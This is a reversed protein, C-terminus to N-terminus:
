SSGGNGSEKRVRLKEGWFYYSLAPPTIIMSTRSDREFSYESFGSEFVITGSLPFGVMDEYVYVKSQGTSVLQSLTVERDFPAEETLYSTYDLPDAPDILRRQVFEEQEIEVFAVVTAVHSFIGDFSKMSTPKRWVLPVKVQEVPKGEEERTVAQLSGVKKRMRILFASLSDYYDPDRCVTFVYYVLRVPVPPDFVKATLKDKDKDKVRKFWDSYEDLPEPEPGFVALAPTRQILSKKRFDDTVAGTDNEFHLPIKEEGYKLALNNALLEALAKSVATIVCEKNIMPDYRKSM